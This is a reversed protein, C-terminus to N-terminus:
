RFILVTKSNNQDIIELASIEGNDHQAQWVEAPAKVTHSYGIEVEGTTIVIDNGKDVSDCDVAMLQGQNQVGTDGTVQDFFELGIQRGRNGNSFTTFFDQWQDRPIQQNLAM